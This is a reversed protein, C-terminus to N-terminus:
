MMWGGHRVSETKETGGHRQPECGPKSVLNVMRLYEAQNKIAALQLVEAQKQLLRERYQGSKDLGLAEAIRILATLYNKEHTHVFALNFRARVDSPNIKLARLYASKAEATRGWEFLADGLTCWLDSSCAPNLKLALKAMDAGAKPDRLSFTLFGSIESLVVWNRPQRELGQRYFRM